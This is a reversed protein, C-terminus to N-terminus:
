EIIKEAKGTQMDIRYTEGGLIEEGRAAAEAKAQERAARLEEIQRADAEKEADERRKLSEMVAGIKKLASDALRWNALGRLTLGDLDQAASALLELETM